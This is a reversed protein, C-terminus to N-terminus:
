YIWEIMIDNIKCNKLAIIIFIVIYVKVINILIKTITYAVNSYQFAGSKTM